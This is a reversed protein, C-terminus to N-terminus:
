SIQLAGSPARRRRETPVTHVTGTLADLWVVSFNPDPCLDYRGVSDTDDERSAGLIHNAAPRQGGHQSNGPPLARCFNSLWPLLQHRHYVHQRPMMVSRSEVRDVGFVGYMATTERESFSPSVTNSMVSIIKLMLTRTATWYAGADTPPPPPPPTLALFIVNWSRTYDGTLDRILAIYHPLWDAFDVGVGNCLRSSKADSDPEFELAPGTSSQTHTLCPGPWAPDLDPTPSPESASTCSSHTLFGM